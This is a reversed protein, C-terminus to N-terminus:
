KRKNVTYKAKCDPNTCDFHGTVVHRDIIQHIKKNEFCAPCALFSENKKDQYVYAGGATKIQKYKKLRNRWDDPDSKLKHRVLLITVVVLYVSIITLLWYPVQVTKIAFSAIWSRVQPFVLSGGSIIMFAIVKSWVPDKWLKM